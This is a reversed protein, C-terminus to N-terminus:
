GRSGEAGEIEAKGGCKGCGIDYCPRILHGLFLALPAFKSIIHQSCLAGTVRSHAMPPTHVLLMYPFLYVDGGERGGKGEELGVLWAPM